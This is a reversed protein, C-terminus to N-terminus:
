FLVSQSLVGILLRNLTFNFGLDLKLPGTLTAWGAGKATATRTFFGLAFLGLVGGAAITVLTIGMELPFSGRGTPSSRAVPSTLASPGVKSNTVHSARNIAM